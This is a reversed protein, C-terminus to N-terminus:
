FHTVIFSGFSLYACNSVRSYTCTCTVIKYIKRIFILLKNTTKVQTSLSILVRDSGEFKYKM